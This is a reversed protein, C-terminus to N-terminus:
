KTLFQTDEFHNYRGENWGAIFPIEQQYVDEGSNLIIVTNSKLWILGDMRIPM